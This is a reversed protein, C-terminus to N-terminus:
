LRKQHYFKLHLLFNMKSNNTSNIKVPMRYAMVLMITRVMSDVRSVISDTASSAALVGSFRATIIKKRIMDPKMAPTMIEAMDGSRMILISEM